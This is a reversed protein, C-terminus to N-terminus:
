SVTVYAASAPHMPRACCSPVNEGAVVDVELGCDGCHYRPIASGPEAVGRAEFECSVDVGTVRFVFDGDRHIAM